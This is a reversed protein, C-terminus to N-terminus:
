LTNLECWIYQCVIVRSPQTISNTLGAAEENYITQHSAPSIVHFASNTDHLHTERCAM